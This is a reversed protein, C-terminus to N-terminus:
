TETRGHSEMWEEIDERLWITGASLVAVPKPFSASAALQHVRQKTVGLMVAIEATGVLEDVLRFSLVRGAKVVM